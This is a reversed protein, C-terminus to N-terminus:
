VTGRLYNLIKNTQNGDLVVCSEFRRWGRPTCRCTQNGDLVVCSEFSYQLPSGILGTQNGDLVVCSEFQFPVQIALFSPKTVM